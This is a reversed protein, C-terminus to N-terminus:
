NLVSQSSKRQPKKCSANSPVEFRGLILESKDERRKGSVQFRGPRLFHYIIIKEEEKIEEYQLICFKKKLNKLTAPVWNRM